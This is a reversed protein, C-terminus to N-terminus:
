GFRKPWPLNEKEKQDLRRFEELTAIFGAEARQLSDLAVQETARHATVAARDEESQEAADNRQEEQDDIM